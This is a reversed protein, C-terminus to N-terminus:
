FYWGGVRVYWEWITLNRIRGGWLLVYPLDTSTGWSNMPM